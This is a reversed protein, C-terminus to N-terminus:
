AKKMREGSAFIIAVIVVGTLISRLSAGLGLINLLNVILYLLISAGIIGPVNSAGGAINSGGLVVVAISNLMYEDGMDLTAGGSFGALLIGALASFVGCLAYTLMKNADVRIGSLWAAKINQGVAHIYRGYKTRSLMFHMIVAILIVIAFLLPTEFIKANVLKELGTPPKLQLGRFFVIALTRVIFSSSLTAIMPPMLVIRILGFNLAGVLAGVSLGALAGLLITGDAENMVKMAVLGALSLTYPVSLDINGPGTTIVLMQGIGVLIFFSAFTISAALTQTSNGSVASILGFIVAAGLYSWVWKQRMLDLFSSKLEGREFM